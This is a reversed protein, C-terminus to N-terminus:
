DCGKRTRKATAHAVVDDTKAAFGVVLDPRGKAMRSVTTLINPNESFSLTPLARAQKKIKSESASDVRWDAVAAAFVAADVPLVGEVAELM